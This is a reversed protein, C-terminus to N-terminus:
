RGNDEEVIGRRVFNKLIEAKDQALIQEYNEEMIPNPPPMYEEKPQKSKSIVKHDWVMLIQLLKIASPVSVILGIVLGIAFGLVVFSSM